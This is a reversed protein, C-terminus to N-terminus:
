ARPRETAITETTLAQAERLCATADVRRYFALAAELEAHGDAHDAGLLDEAARLHALAEDPMSGIQRFREAAARPDGTLLAIVAELWKTAVPIARAIRVLEESRGPTVLACALDVAWSSTPYADINTAWLALVEDALLHGASSSGVAVEARAAFALAPYLMQLDEAARAFDLAGAADALAGAADGRALRIRGRMARCYGDMFNPLGAEAEAIYSDAIEIAEDWAGTWYGEAVREAALWRMFGAHGFREAHRRAHAQLEFCASLNGAQCELDALLGYCHASLHSGIQETIAIGRRLDDHGRRDGSWGRTLGIIALASAELERLDTRRAIDLADTAVAIAREDERAIALHNALDVLVEAKSGTPGLDAVLAAARELHGAVEERKGQHHASRALVAEAEAAAGRDGAALLEDRALELVDAGATEAYYISKGLRFLLWPRDPDDEPWLELASRFLRAAAPFAHLSLARDGADRLALRARHALEATEGGIARTLEYASLYHHALLDARDVARDPSLSEIWEATRRHMEARRRRPIQGYAVDRILAHQFRYEPENEVASARTRALFEKREATALGDLVRERPRGTVAALAGPWSARGIVSAAQLLQKDEPALADLRSTIIGRLSDPLPLPDVDTGERKAAHGLLGRDALMRVLEVSYLPNGAAHSVIAQTTHEPMGAEGALSSVLERSHDDSLPGLSVITTNGNRGLEPRRDFLEPRATSVILLPVDETWEVLHDIFDLLGDDACHIDELVLISPRQRAIAEIFHRWAAFAAARQDGRTDTTHSLGVLSALQGEIRDADARVSILSRVARRLKTAATTARDTALIGAQGKVIEGLAWFTIGEPYPPSRGHRWNILDPRAEVHRFLEFVIRSKGIGPEGVLTVLRPKAETRAGELADLLTALEDRRDILPEGSSLDLDLGRRALPGLPRWAAVPEAKGKAHVPEVEAYEIAHRTARYTPEDVFITDAPAASELRSATNLIDGWALGGHQDPRPEFTVLAEGTTVGIHVHLDLDPQAANLNAVADLGALAARVAREPDDEHVRPAGFVVFVADGIFKAVSGGFREFEARVSGYYSRLMRHVDEPDMLEARPTFGVVDCFLASIIKREAEAAVAEHHAFPAGCGGCFRFEDPSERGCRDCRM